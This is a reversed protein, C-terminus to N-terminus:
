KKVMWIFEFGATQFFYTKDISKYFKISDGEMKANEKYDKWTEDEDLVDKLRVNKLFQKESIKKKHKMMRHWFLEGADTQRLRECTIFKKM